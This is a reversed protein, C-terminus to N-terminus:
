VDSGGARLARVALDLKAMARSGEASDFEEPTVRIRLAYLEDAAEAVRLLAPLANRVECLLAVDVGRFAGDYTIRDPFPEPEGGKHYEVGEVCAEGVYEFWPGKTAAKELRRLREIVSEAPM